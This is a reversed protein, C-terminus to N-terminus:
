QEISKIVRAPNGAAISNAPIDKTVVSGAGIVCGDGITVGPLITTHGGVWVNNGITVPKGYELGSNREVANVPHTAAYIHVGPAFMCNDGITVPCIDLITCNFNFYVKKGIHINPGYDCFFPPEIWLDAQQVPILEKLLQQREEIADPESRNFQILLKRAQMRGAALEPDAPDYMQGAIMKEKETM